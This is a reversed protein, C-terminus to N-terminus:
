DQDKFYLERFILTKITQDELDVQYSLNLAKIAYEQIDMKKRQLNLLREMATGTSNPNMFRELFSKRFEKYSGFTIDEDEDINILAWEAVTKRFLSM